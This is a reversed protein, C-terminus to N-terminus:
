TPLIKAPNGIVTSGPPVDERVLAAPMVIANDGVTVGPLIISRPGIYCNQGVYTDYYIGRTMDHTLIVAAEGIYTHQSIHVGRPYTRDIRASPEIFSDPHIDMGWLKTYIQYYFKAKLRNILSTQHHPRM